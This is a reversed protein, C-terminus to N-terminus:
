ALRRDAPVLPTGRRSRVAVVKVVAAGFVACGLVGHVVTRTPVERRGALGLEGPGLSWLCHYAVFVSWRWPVTGGLRHARGLWTPAAVGLRGYLWLAGRASGALAAIVLSVVVKM